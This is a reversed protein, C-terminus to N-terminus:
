SRKRTMVKFIAAVMKFFNGGVATITSAKSYDDYDCIEVRWMKKEFLHKM